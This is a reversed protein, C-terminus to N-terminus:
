LDSQSECREFRWLSIIIGRAPRRPGQIVLFARGGRGGPVRGCLSRRSPSGLLALVRPIARSAYSADLATARIYTEVASAACRQTATSASGGGALRALDCVVEKAQRRKKTPQDEDDDDKSLRDRRLMEDCLDAFAFFAEASSVEIAATRLDHAANNALEPHPM